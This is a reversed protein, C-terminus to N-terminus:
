THFFITCLRSCLQPFVPLANVEFDLDPSRAFNISSLRSSSLFYKNVPNLINEVRNWERSISSEQPLKESFWFHDGKQGNWLSHYCKSPEFSSIQSKLKTYMFFEVLNIYGLIELAVSRWQPNMWLSWTSHIKPFEDFLRTKGQTKTVKM